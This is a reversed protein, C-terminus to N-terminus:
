FKGNSNKWKDKPPVAEVTDWHEVLKGDEVRFLDYIASHIDNYTGENVTLVFNGDALVKHNKKYQIRVRKESGHKLADILAATGDIMRPNHQKFKESSIYTDIELHNGNILVNDVFTQVIKRNEETRDHNTVRTPGSVMTHGSSNSGERTQINDWHEVTM